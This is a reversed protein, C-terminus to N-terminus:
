DIDESSEDDPATSFSLACSSNTTFLSADAGKNLKLDKRM